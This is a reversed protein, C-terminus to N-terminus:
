HPIKVFAGNQIRLFDVARNAHNEPDFTIRSSRGQFNQVSELAKVLSEPDGAGNEICHVILSFADYGKLSIINQMGSRSGASSAYLDPALSVIYAGEVAAANNELPFFESSWGSDGLLVTNINYDVIYQAIQAADHGMASILIGDITNVPVLRQPGYTSPDLKIVITDPYATGNNIVITSEPLASSHPANERISMIIPNIDQIAVNQDVFATKIVRAGLNRVESGFKEAVAQGWEDKTAIVALNSFKLVNAALEALAEAQVVPNFNLQFVYRGIETLTSNQATPSIFPVKRNNAEIAATVTSEGYVPGIVAIVNEDALQKMKRYSTIMNSETDEVILRIKKGNVSEKEKLAEQVGALLQSGQLSNDGTLPVLLGIDITDGAVWERNVEISDSVAAPSAREPQYNLEVPPVTDSASYPELGDLESLAIGHQDLTSQVVAQDIEPLLVYRIARLAKQRIDTNRTNGALRALTKLADEKKGTHFQCAGVCYQAWENYRSRPYYRRLETAIKAAQDYEGLTYYIKALLMSSTTIRPSTKYKEVIESLDLRAAVLKGENYRMLGRRYLAESVAATEDDSKSASPQIFVISCVLAASFVLRTLRALFSLPPRHRLTRSM